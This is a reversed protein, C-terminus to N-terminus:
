QHPAVYYYIIRIVKLTAMHLNKPDFGILKRKMKENSVEFDFLM